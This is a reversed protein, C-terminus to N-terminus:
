DRRSTRGGCRGFALFAMLALAGLSIAAGATEATRDHQLDVTRMGPTVRLGTAAYNTPYTPVPRGDAEADWQRSHSQAVVLWGDAGAPLHIRVHGPGLREFRASALPRDARSPLSAAGRPVLAERSPDFSGAALTELAERDGLPRTAPVVYARPLALPDHFITLDPGSYAVELSPDPPPTQPAALVFRTNLMRLATLAAGQPAPTTSVMSRSPGREGLVFYSLDAWRRPAPIDYGQISEFGYLSATNPPLVYAQDPLRIISVHFPERQDQLFRIGPTPAPHAFRPELVANFGQLYWLDGVLVVLVVALALPRRLRGLVLVCATGALLAVAFRLAAEEEVDRPAPLRGTVGLVVACLTVVAGVAASWVLAKRVALPRAMLAHVALGAAVAAALAVVHSVRLAVMTNFLPLVDILWGVPPADFAVMGMFLASVALAVVRRDARHRVLGVGALLAAGIGFYGGMSFGTPGWWAPRGDGFVEPLAFTLVWSPPLHQDGGDHAERTISDLYAVGFPVLVVAAAVAGLALAGAFAALPRRGRGTRLLLVGLFVAAALANLAATEPHGAVISTAVALAMLSFGRRDPRRALRETALLVWPLLALESGLMHQVWLVLPASLAYVLGAALSGPAGAGLRRALLYAGIGALLLRLVAIWGFAVEVPLVMALWTLPFLLASQLNGFLPMGSYSSPNWLPLVGDHLQERALSLIPHYHLAADGEGHRPALPLDAPKDALWPFTEYLIHSQGLQHGTFLPAFFACVVAAIVTCAALDPHRRIVGATVSLASM